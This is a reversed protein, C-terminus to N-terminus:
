FAFGVLDPSETADWSCPSLSHCRGGAAGAGVHARLWLEASVPAASPEAEATILTRTLHCSFGGWGRGSM